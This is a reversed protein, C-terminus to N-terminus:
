VKKLSMNEDYDSLKHYRIPATATLTLLRKKYDELYQKRVKDEVQFAAYAVFPPLPQIGCFYLVGHNVPYLVQNMDWGHPADPSYIAEPGGTTVSLMGKKGALLGKDYMRGFDWAFGTALVRDFWGKLIAPVSFWWLPYQLIIFDAWLLKVQEKKIDDTLKQKEYANKLEMVYNVHETNTLQLFDDRGLSAKFNIRYLDSIKVEHGQERLASIALEKMASNFSRPEPHAYVILVKM